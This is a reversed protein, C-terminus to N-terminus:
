ANGGSLHTMPVGCHTCQREEQLRDNFDDMSITNREFL